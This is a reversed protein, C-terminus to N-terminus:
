MLASSSDLISFGFHQHGAMREDSLLEMLGEVGQAQCLHQGCALAKSVETRLPREQLEHWHDVKDTNFDSHHLVPM